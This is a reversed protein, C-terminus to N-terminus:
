TGSYKQRKITKKSSDKSGSDTKIKNLLSSQECSIKSGIIIM